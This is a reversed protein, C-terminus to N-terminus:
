VAIKLDQNYMQITDMNENVLRLIQNHYPTFQDHKGYCQAVRYDKINVEITEIRVGDITASMILSDPHTLMNWYGCSYVCHHMVAAEARFADVDPLVHIRIQGDTFTMPFFRNRKVFYMQELKENKKRLEDARRMREDIRVREQIRQQMRVFRNHTAMLDSPAVYSPSRYDYGCYIIARVMDLWIPTNEETFRFGHRKAIKIAALQEEVNMYGPSIGQLANDHQNFLTEYYSYKLLKKVASPHVKDTPIRKGRARLKSGCSLEMLGSLTYGYYNRGNSRLEISSGYAFSDYYCGMTRQKACVLKHEGDNFLRLLEYIVFYDRKRRTIKHIRYLRKVEWGGCNEDVNFYLIPNGEIKENFFSKAWEADSVAIDESLTANLEAVRKEYKNRPRM